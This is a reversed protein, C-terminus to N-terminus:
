GQVRQTNDPGTEGEINAGIDPFVPTVAPATEPAPNGDPLPAYIQPSLRLNSAPKPTHHAFLPNKGTAPPQPWNDMLITIQALVKKVDEVWAVAKASWAPESSPPYGYPFGLAQQEKLLRDVDFLPPSHPVLRVQMERLEAELQGMVVLFRTWQHEDMAGTTFEEKLTDGAEAGKQAIALLTAAPMDLNLGGESKELRVQVIRERYSPLQSQQNDRFNQMTSVIAGLFSVLGPLANVTRPPQENARPLYVPATPDAAKRSAARGESDKTPTPDAFKQPLLNGTKPDFAEPPYPTLDIGFTPRIPLWNDFFQIPFNSSLGGDSFWNQNLDDQTLPLPPKANIKAFAKTGLTWLPVASLLIPFSLSMRMAVVIPLDAASPLFYFGKPLELGRDSIHRKGVLHDVVDSPFYERMRAEEFLFRNNEFPLVYPLEESVNTTMMKLVIPHPRSQLDGFTLPVKYKRGAGPLGVEVTAREDKAGIGEIQGILWDILVPRGASGAKGAPDHGICIGFGNDPLDRFLKRLLAWGSGVVAGLVGYLTLFAVRRAGGATGGDLKSLGWGVGVGVVAGAALEVGTNRVLAGLVGGVKRVVRVAQGGGDKSHMAASAVRLLAATKPSPQFLGSLFGPECLAANLAELRAFGGKERGYEAAASAVAAIAGASTGGINRLRYTDKLALVAKPYVIGSTIGGKMVLDCELLPVEKQTLSTEAPITTSMM